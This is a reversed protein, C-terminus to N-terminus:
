GAKGAQVEARVQWEGSTVALRKGSVSALRHGLWRYVNLSLRARRQLRGRIVGSRMQEYLRLGGDFARREEATIQLSETNQVTYGLPAMEEAFFKELLALQSASFVDRYRGIRETTAPKSLLKHHQGDPMTNEVDDFKRYFELMGPEFDVGIFRCIEQLVMAPQATLQEYRVWLIQDPPFAQQDLLHRLYYRVQAAARMLYETDHRGGGWREDYSVIVDRPDRLCLLVKAQPFLRRLEPLWLLHGPTKEGWREAGRSAAYARGFSELIPRTPGVYDPQKAAEQAWVGAAPDNYECLSRWVRNLFLIYQWRNRFEEFCGLRDLVVYCWTEPLIALASHADLMRSLLTTGSRSPGVILIPSSAADSATSEVKPKSALRLEPVPAPAVSASKGITATRQLMGQLRAWAAGAILRDDANIGSVWAMGLFVLYAVPLTVAIAVWPPRVGGMGARLLFVVVFTAMWPPVLRVYSRNYPSLGLANRVERLNLGNSIANTLAAAVAAGVIGWRPILILNLLVMLAASVAQVRMLRRQNGSMLLLYGVSGVGCNVLQGLTGVVLIPWAFEFDHGFIGMLPRAFIIVVTALPLTLGLIWKTLTQFMRGLLEQEGRAYLDAIAPSFIQNVSQLLIPIFTVLAAAVAYVGVARPDLFFGILVKDTQGVLFELLGVGFVVASFSIVEPELRPLDVLGVRAAGPTLKWVLVALLVLVVAASAAQAFIYGWLGTGLVILLVSLAITLPSAVFSTVVTRRVVDKYGALVQGLFTTLAGLLMILAFLPLYPVLAPTHYFHVAIYPGAVLVLTALVLNLVVLIASGRLLFGALQKWRRTASYMAVFRVASQPLGLANFVGVLGVITMGLAFIGLAEAGLVRALYVKFLYGAAATFITGAFFISSQRSINGIQERFKQTQGSSPRAEPGSEFATEKATSSGM